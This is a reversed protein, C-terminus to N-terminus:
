FLLIKVGIAVLVLGGFVGAKRGSLPGLKGGLAGGLFSIFFTTLGILAVSCYINPIETMAFTVGMAFADLSTAVALMLLVRLSHCGGPCDHRKQNKVAEWLMHLGVGLVLVFAIFKAYVSVYGYALGSLGWGLLPMLAQFVGFFLAMVLMDKARPRKTLACSVSVALADLSLALAILFIELHNM